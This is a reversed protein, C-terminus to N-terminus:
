SPRSAVASSRRFSPPRIFGRPVRKHPGGDDNDGDTWATDSRRVQITVAAMLDEGYEVEKWGHILDTLSGRDMYELVM